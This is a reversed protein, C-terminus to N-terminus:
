LLNYLEKLSINKIIGTDTERVTIITDGHLCFEQEFKKVNNNMDKIKQKKWDENRDPHLNWHLFIPLFSNTGTLAGDWMSYYWGGLGKPTSLICMHGNTTDLTPLASDYIQVAINEPIFSAEDIVLFTLTASRAANPSRAESTCTSNNSLRVCHENWIVPELSLFRPVNELIIKVKRMLEKAKSDKESIVVIEQNAKFLLMWAIIAAMLTSLGMQRAKNIIVKSNKVTLEYLIPKQFDYLKFLSKKAKSIIISYNEIFYLSDDKCKKYIERKEEISHPIYMISSQENAAM